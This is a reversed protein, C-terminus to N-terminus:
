VISWWIRCKWGLSWQDTTTFTFKTMRLSTLFVDQSYINLKFVNYRIIYILVLAPHLAYGQNICLIGISKLTFFFQFACLEICIYGFVNTKTPSYIQFCKNNKQAAFKPVVNCVGSKSITRRLILASKEKNILPRKLKKLCTLIYCM